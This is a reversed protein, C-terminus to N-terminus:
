SLSKLLEIINQHHQYIKGAGATVIVDNKQLTNRLYPLLKENECNLINPSKKELIANILSNQVNPFDIEKERSAFIPLIISLDAKTLSNVFNVRLAQTRSFTHPEFILVLRRGKFISKMTKILNVIADPHHAYDDILTFYENEFVIQMRRAPISINKMAQSIAGLDYGLSTLMAVVSAANLMNKEGWFPLSLEIKSKGNYKLAMMSGTQNEKRELIQFANSDEFGYTIVQNKLDPFRDVIKMLNQDDGCVVLNQPKDVFKSIFDAFINEIDSYNPYIDPHDHSVNTIIAHTPYMLSLKSNLNIPPDIAYEDAEFVFNEFNGFNAPLKEGLNNTGVIYSPNAGLNQLTQALIATTTTKGNVGAVAISNTFLKVIESLLKAQTIVRIGKREAGNAQPNNKGGHITYVVLDTDKPLNTAPFNDDYSVKINLKEPIKGTPSILASITDSGTVIKGMQTLLIALSMQGVGHIGIFHIHSFNM